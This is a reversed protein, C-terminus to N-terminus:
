EEYTGLLNKHVIWDALPAKYLGLFREFLFNPSLAKFIYSKEAM